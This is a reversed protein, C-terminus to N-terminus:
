ESDSSTSESAKASSSSRKQSNTSASADTETSYGRAAREQAKQPDQVFTFFETPDNNFSARESAPLDAFIENSKATLDLASKLDSAPAFGYSPKHTNQHEILGTVAYRKLIMNINVDNAHHQETLTPEDFHIRVPKHHPPNKNGRLTGKITM